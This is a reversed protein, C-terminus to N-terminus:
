YNITSNATLTGAPSMFTYPEEMEINSQTTNEIGNGLFFIPYIQYSMFNNKQCIARIALLLMM